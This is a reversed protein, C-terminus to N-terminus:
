DHTSVTRKKFHKEMQEKTLGLKQGMDLEEQGISASGGGAAPASGSFSAGVSKPRGVNVGALKAAKEIKASIAAEDSEKMGSLLAMEKEVAERVKPDGGSVDDLMRRRVGENVKQDIKADVDALAAAIAESKDKDSDEIRKRMAVISESKSKGDKEIKSLKEELEAKDKAFKAEIEAKAESAASERLKAVEDPSMAGEIPNGNEDYLM